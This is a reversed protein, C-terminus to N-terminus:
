LQIKQELTRDTNMTCKAIRRETEKLGSCNEQSKNKSHHGKKFLRSLQRTSHGRTDHGPRGEGSDEAGESVVWPWRMGHTRDSCLAQGGQVSGVQSNPMPARYCKTSRNFSNHILTKEWDQRVQVSRARKKPFAQAAM